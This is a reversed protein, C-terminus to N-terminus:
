RGPHEIYHKALNRHHDIKSATFQWNSSDPLFFFDLRGSKQLIETCNITGGAVGHFPPQKSKLFQFHVTQWKIARNSRTQGISQVSKKQLFFVWDELQFGFSM